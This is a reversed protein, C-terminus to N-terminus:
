EDRLRCYKDFFEREDETMLKFIAKRRDIEASCADGGFVSWDYPRDITFIGTVSVYPRPPAGVKLVLVRNSPPLLSKSKTKM